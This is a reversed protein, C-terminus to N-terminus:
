KKVIGNLIIDIVKDLEEDLDIIKFKDNFLKRQAILVLINALISRFLIVPEIDNRIVGEEIMKKYFGTFIDFAKKIINNYLAERVDDHLIAEILIVKAMPFLSEMLMLRDYFIEKLILRIDKKSSDQFIKEISGLIIKSSM